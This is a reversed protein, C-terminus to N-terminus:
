ATLAETEFFVLNRQQKDFEMGILFVENEANLYKQQYNKAKIQALAIGQQTKDDLAKFEIIFIKNDLKVTLDIQGHNTSDEAIVTLGLACFCSYVISAYYGEYLSMKNKRYWDHPISAFLANFAQKLGEFDCQKLAKRIDTRNRTISSPTSHVLERLIYHNLSTRVERNPYTLYFLTDGDFEEVKDITLYGTQFLITELTIDNIDFDGLDEESLCINEIDPVNYQSGRILKLLFSPSGTEFWYNKFRKKELYLLIAFPNYVKEGLFNYGNYWSALEKFDVGDLRETFVDKIEQETYGCLTAYDSSLSIDRLNNLGSFLSIKSFKSVGTLLVFKLYADSDKLVSYISRMEDRIIEAFEPNHLNDLIPKDYEDVLVVVPLGKLKYLARILEVLRSNEGKATLTIGYDEAHENLIALFTESLREVSNMVGRGFSIHIVPYQKSWDWNKELYLNKFLHEEGAFASKLTSLLLSKGFRRPRSLFYYKGNEALKSILPTKDVYYHNDNILESFTQLGIPLKKM